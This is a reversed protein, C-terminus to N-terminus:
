ARFYFRIGYGSYYKEKRIEEAEKLEQELREKKEKKKVAAATSSGSEDMKAMTERIAEEIEATVEEDALKKKKSLQQAM